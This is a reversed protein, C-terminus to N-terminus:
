RGRSEVFGDTELVIRLEGVLRGRAHHPAFRGAEHQEGMGFPAGKRAAGDWWSRRAFHHKSQRAVAAVRDIRHAACGGCIAARGVDIWYFVMVEHVGTVESIGVAM